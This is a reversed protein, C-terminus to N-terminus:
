EGDVCGEGLAHRVRRAPKKYEYGDEAEDGQCSDHRRPAAIVPGNQHHHRCADKGGDARDRRVKDVHGGVDEDGGRHEHHYRDQGDPQYKSLGRRLSFHSRNCPAQCVARTLYFSDEIRQLM